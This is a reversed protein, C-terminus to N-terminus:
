KVHENLRKHLTVAERIYDDMRTGKHTGGACPPVCEQGIGHRALQKALKKSQNPGVGFMFIKSKTTTSLLPMLMAWMVRFVVPTNVLYMLHLSDTYRHTLLKVFETLFSKVDGTFLSMTVGELDIVCIHKYVTHARQSISKMFELTEMVQIRHRMIEDVTMRAKLADPKVASPHECLVPHGYSDQGHVFAPWNTYMCDSYPLIGGTLLEDVKNDKRWQLVVRVREASMFAYKKAKDASWKGPPHNQLETRIARDFLEYPLAKFSTFEDRPVAAKIHEHVDVEKGILPRSETLLGHRDKADTFSKDRSFYASPETTMGAFKRGLYGLDKTPTSPADADADSDLDDGVADQFEDAVYLEKDVIYQLVDPHLARTPACDQLLQEATECGQRQELARRIMTSSVPAGAPATVHAELWSVSRIDRTVHGSAGFNRERRSEYGHRPAVIFAYDRLLDEGRFWKGSILDDFADEGVCIIFNTDPQERRLVDMLAATSGPKTNALGGRHELSARYEARSVVLRAAKTGAASTEGADDDSASVSRSGAPALTAHKGVDADSDMVAGEFALACMEVRAEYSTTALRKEAYAHAYVPTVRVEDVGECARLARVVSGHGGVDTPPDASLGYVIVTGGSGTSTSTSSKRSTGNADVDGVIDRSSARARRGFCRPAGARWPMRRRRRRRRRRRARRPARVRRHSASACLVAVVDM